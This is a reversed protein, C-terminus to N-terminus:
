AVRGERLDGPRPSRVYHGVRPEPLGAAECAARYSGFLRRVQSYGPLWEVRERHDGAGLEGVTPRRGHEDAFDRLADIIRERTWIRQRAGACRVCRKPARPSRGWSGNTPRGCDACRGRYSDKRARVGAGDPDAGLNRAYSYSVGLLAAVERYLLGQARLEAVQAAREARSVAM